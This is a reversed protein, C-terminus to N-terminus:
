ANPSDEGETKVAEETPASEKPELETGSPDGSPMSNGSEPESVPANLDGPNTEPTTSDGPISPESPVEPASEVPASEPVAPVEAEVAPTPAQEVPAAEPTVIEDTPMIAQTNVLSNFKGKYEPSLNDWNALIEKRQGESLKEAPTGLAIEFPTKFSTGM